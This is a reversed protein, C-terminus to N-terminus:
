YGKFSRDLKICDYYSFHSKPLLNGGIIGRYLEEYYFSKKVIFIIIQLEAMM